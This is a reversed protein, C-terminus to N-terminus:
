IPSTMPSRSWARAKIQPGVGLIVRCRTIISWLLPAGTPAESLAIPEHLSFWVVPKCRPSTNYSHLLQSSQGPPKQPGCQLPLVLQQAWLATVSTGFMDSGMLASLLSPPRNFLFACNVRVHGQLEQCLLLQPWTDLSHIQLPPYKFALKTEGVLM